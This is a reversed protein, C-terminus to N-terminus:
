LAALWARIADLSEPEDLFPVHGRDPIEAAIMDPRRARMAAFTEPTLLDSNAGRLAALPLGDLADFLPWLDPLHAAWAARVTEALAPDYRLALGDDTERFAHRAEQLWRARPVGAFGPVLGARLDAAEDLTRAAPTRGIYDRIAALGVAGLEPGIDNLCVGRLRHKATAALTMAILGGRSTGLIPLADHGLHDMLELTDRAEVPITYSDPAGWDSRGRGRYDLAILRAEPLAQALYDFDRSSRTLGALCLVPPATEPGHLRYHLGLGDSTTFDPM